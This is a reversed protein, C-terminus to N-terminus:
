HAEAGTAWIPVDCAFDRGDTTKFGDVMVESVHVNNVVKINKREYAKMVLKRVADGETPLVKDGSCYLTVEIEQNFLKSWRTKFAFALEVGAAGSGIVAVKPVVGRELLSEEKARIRELLSNIPRTALGFENVGPIKETDRTKSGVNVCLYDYDISEGNGLHIKNANAEIRMVKQSIFEAKCWKALPELFIKIQDELYLASVSGPLMGSYYAVPSDAVLTLKAYDPMTKKLQKLVQVNCHGGGVLVVRKAGAEVM